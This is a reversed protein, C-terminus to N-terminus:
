SRNQPSGGSFLSVSHTIYDSYGLLIFIMYYTTCGNHEFLAFYSRLRRLLMWMLVRDELVCVCEGVWYWYRLAYAHMISGWVCFSLVFYVSRRRRRRTRRDRTGHM